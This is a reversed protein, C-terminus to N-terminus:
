LPSSLLKKSPSIKIKLDHQMFGFKGKVKGTVANVLPGWSLKDDLKVGLYLESTVVELPHGRLKYTLEIKDTARSFRMTKCKDPHFSMQWRAEWEM